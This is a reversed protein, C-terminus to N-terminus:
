IVNHAALHLDDVQAEFRTHHEDGYVFALTVGGGVDLVVGYEGEGTMFPHPGAAIPTGLSAIIRSLVPRGAIRERVRIRGAAPAARLTLVLDHGSRARTFASLFSPQSM